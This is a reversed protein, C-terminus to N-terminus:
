IQAAYVWYVLLVFVDTNDSLVRIISKDSNATELVSIMTVDSKDHDFAGDDWTEMTTNEGLSFTCLVSELRRKNNKNKLIVDRKPYPVPSPFSMTSSLKVLGDCESTIRPRFVKISTLSLPKRLVMKM